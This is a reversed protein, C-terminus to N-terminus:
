PDQHTKKDSPSQFRKSPRPIKGQQEWKRIKKRDDKNPKRGKDLKDIIDDFEQKEPDSLGKRIKQREEPDSPLGHKREGGKPGPM